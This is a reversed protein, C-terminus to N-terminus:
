ERCDADLDDHRTEDLHKLAHEVAARVTEPSVRKVLAVRVLHDIAEVETKFGSTMAWGDVRNMVWLKSVGDHIGNSM